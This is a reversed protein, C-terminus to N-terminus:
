MDIFRVRGGARPWQIEGGVEQLGGGGGSRDPATPRLCNLSRSAMDVGACVRM